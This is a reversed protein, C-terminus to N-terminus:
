CFFSCIPKLGFHKHACVTARVSAILELMMLSELAEDEGTPFPSWTLRPPAQLHLDVLTTQHVLAKAKMGLSLHLGWARRM